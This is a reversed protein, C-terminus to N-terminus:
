TLKLLKKNISDHEEDHMSAPYKLNNVLHM